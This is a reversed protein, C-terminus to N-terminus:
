TRKTHISGESKFLVWLAAGLAIIAASLQKWVSSCLWPAEPTCFLAGAALSVVGGRRPVGTYAITEYPSRNCSRNSASLCLFLHM